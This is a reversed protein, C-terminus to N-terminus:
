RFRYVVAVHVGGITAPAVTVFPGDRVPDLRDNILVQVTGGALAGGLASLSVTRTRRGEQKVSTILAVSSAVFAGTLVTSLQAGRKQGTTLEEGKALLRDIEAGTRHGIYGGGACGALTASVRSPARLGHDLNQRLAESAALYGAWCGLGGFGITAPIAWYPEAQASTTSPMGLSPLIGCLLVAFITKAPSLFVQGMPLGQKFSLSGTRAWGAVTMIISLSYVPICSGDTPQLDCKVAM